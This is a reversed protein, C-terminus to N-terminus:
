FYIEAAPIVKPGATTSLILAGTEDVTEFVGKLRKGGVVAYIETGLRAAGELWAKRVPAFGFRRFTEEWHHYASALVALFEQDGPADGVASKVSTAPLANM